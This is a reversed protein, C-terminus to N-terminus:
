GSSVNISATNGFCVLKLDEPRSSGLHTMKGTCTQSDYGKFISVSKNGWKIDTFISSDFGYMSLSNERKFNMPMVENRPKM